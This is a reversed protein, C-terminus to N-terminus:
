GCAYSGAPWDRRRDLPERCVTVNLEMGAAAGCGERQVLNIIGNVCWSRDRLPTVM